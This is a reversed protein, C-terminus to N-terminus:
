LRQVLQGTHVISGLYGVALFLIFICFLFHSLVSFLPLSALGWNM